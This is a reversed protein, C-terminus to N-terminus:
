DTAGPRDMDYKPRWSHFLNGIHNAETMSLEQRLLSRSDPKDNPAWHTDFDVAQGENPSKPWLTAGTAADIVRVTAKARGRTMGGPPEEFDFQKLSVYLITKANMKRGIDAITMGALGPTDNRLREFEAQDVLPALKNDNVEGVLAAAVEQADISALTDGRYNEVFVLMPQTAPITYLPDVPSPGNLQYDAAGIAACGALGLLTGLLSWAAFRFVVLRGFRTTNM